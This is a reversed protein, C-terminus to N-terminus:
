QTTYTRLMKADLPKKQLCGFFRFQLRTVLSKETNM